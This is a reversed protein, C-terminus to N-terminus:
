TKFKSCREVLRSKPQTSIQEKGPDGLSVIHKSVRKPATSFFAGSAKSTLLRAESFDDFVKNHLLRM